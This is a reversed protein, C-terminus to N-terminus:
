GFINVLGLLAFMCQNRNCSLSMYCFLKFAWKFFATFISLALEYTSKQFNDLLFFHQNRFSNCSVRRVHIGWILFPLRPQWLVKEM